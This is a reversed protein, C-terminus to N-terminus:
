YRGYRRSARGQKRRVNINVNLKGELRRCVFDLRAEIWDIQKQIEESDKLTASQMGEGSDFKYSKNVSTISTEFTDYAEDLLAELRAKQELLKQRVSASLVTM